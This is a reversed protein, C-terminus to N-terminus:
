FIVENNIEITIRSKLQINILNTKISYARVILGEEICELMLHYFSSDQKLAINKIRPNLAIFYYHVVHGLKLLEIIKRLQVIARESYVQPFTANDELTLVSKAEIIITKLKQKKPILLLDAKYDNIKQEKHIEYSKTGYLRKIISKEIVTNVLNLNLLVYSNYHKMAFLSYQTRSTANNKIVLVKKGNIHIYNNIRSSSPVYCEVIEGKINILCLFRNKSEEIFTGEILEKDILVIEVGELHCFRTM